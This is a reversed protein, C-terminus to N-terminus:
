IRPPRFLGDPAGQPAADPGAARVVQACREAALAAQSSMPLAGGHCMSCLSCATGEAPASDSEIDAAAMAQTHCPAASEPQPLHMTVGAWARLPLLALLLWLLALPFVRNHRSMAPLM